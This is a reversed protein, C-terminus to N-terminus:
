QPDHTAYWRIRRNCDFDIGSSENVVLYSTAAAMVEVPTADPLVEMGAAILAYNGAPPQCEADCAQEPDDALQVAIPQAFAPVETNSAVVLPAGPGHSSLQYAVVICEEEVEELEVDLEFCGPLVPPLPGDFSLTISDAGCECELNCLAGMVTNGVMGQNQVRLTAVPPCGGHVVALSPESVIAYPPRFDPVCESGTDLPNGSVSSTDMASTDDPDSTVGQTTGEAATARTDSTDASGRTTGGTSTTGEGEQGVEGQEDATSAEGDEFGANPRTCAAALVVVVIGCSGLWRM